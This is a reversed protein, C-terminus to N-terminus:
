FLEVTGVAPEDGVRGAFQGENRALEETQESRQVRRVRCRGTRPEFLVRRAETGGAHESVIEVGEGMLYSRAFTLNHDGIDTTQRIVRGAGVLKAKLRTPDGGSAVIKSLLFEMAYVGYQCPRQMGQATSASDSGPVLFHNMGGLQAVPDWVCAAVCSGLLTGIREDARTAYFEGMGITAVVRGLKPDVRRAIHEFGAISLPPLLDRGRHPAHNSM